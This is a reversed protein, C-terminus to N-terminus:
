PTKEGIGREAEARRIADRCALGTRREYEAWAPDHEIDVDDDYEEACRAMAACCWACWRYAMLQGDFKASMSRAREGKVIEFGCHSCTGPKRTNVFKDSLVRDSQDGFDGEFPDFSLAAEEQQSSLQLM